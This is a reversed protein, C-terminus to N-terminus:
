VAWEFRLFCTFDNAINNSTLPVDAGFTFTFNHSARFRTYDATLLMKHQTQEPVLASSTQLLHQDVAVCQCGRVFQAQEAKKHWYDYAVLFRWNDTFNIRAGATLQLELQPALGVTYRQPMMVAQLRDSLLTLAEACQAASLHEHEFHIDDFDSPDIVEKIFRPVRKALLWNARFSGLISVHDDVNFTPETYLAIQMRQEDGLQTTLLTANMQNATALGFTKLQDVAEQKTAETGTFQEILTQLNLYPRELKKNFDSGIFGSSFTVESPLTLKTGLILRGREKELIHWAFSARLDGLGLRTEVVYPYIASESVAPTDNIACFPNMLQAIAVRIEQIDEIPFNYNRETVYFPMQLGVSFQKIRKWYDFMFGVNHQEVRINKFLAVSEPVNVGYEKAIEINIDQLYEQTFLNIYGAIGNCFPFINHMEQYFISWNFRSDTPTLTYLSPYTVINRHGLPYTACYLDNKLIRNLHTLTYLTDLDDCASNVRTITSPANFDPFEIEFVDSPLEDAYTTSICSFTSM